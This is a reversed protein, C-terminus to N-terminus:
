SVDEDYGLRMKEYFSKIESLSTQEWVFPYDARTDMGSGDEM